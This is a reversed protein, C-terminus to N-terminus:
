PQKPPPAPPPSTPNISPDGGPADTTPGDPDSAPPTVLQGDKADEDKQNPVKEESLIVFGGENEWREYDFQTM